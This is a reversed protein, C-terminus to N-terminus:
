SLAADGLGCETLRFVDIYRVTYGKELLQKVVESGIFGSVGTVAVIQAANTPAMVLIPKHM